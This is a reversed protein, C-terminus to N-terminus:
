DTKFERSANFILVKKKRDKKKRQRFVLICAALGTRYFLNRGFGIVAELLDMQLIKKRIEGEKAMRFLAGDRLVVAMRGCAPAMSKIMHSGTM